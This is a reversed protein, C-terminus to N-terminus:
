KKAMSLRASVWGQGPASFNTPMAWLNSTTPWGALVNGNFEVENQQNLLPIDPLQAAFISEIQYYAQRQAAANSTGQITNLLADVTPNKYRGFNGAASQGIPKTAMSDLLGYYSAYANPTSGGAQILFQFKGTYMDNGILSGQEPTFTMGIHAAKLETQMIEMISIFDSYGSNVKVNVNLPAGSPERFMGDAGIKYGAAKLISEAKAPDAGSYTDKLTAPSAISNYAPLLLAEPNTPTAYGDYVSKSIYARNIAASVAQRVALVSSPGSLYNAMLFTTDMPFDMVAYKSNKGLYSKNINPLFATGWDVQGSEIAASLPATGSFALLRWEKIKPLGPLYYHPNAVLTIVQPTVKSVLYPGTGVPTPNTWTAINKQKSFIHRPLIYTGGAIYSLDSYAPKTFKVTVSYQGDAVAGALPLGNGNFAPNSTELNFTYAVDASTFPKGDTWMVNHRLSFTISEGDAAWAYGTALWPEIDAANASNFFMLPEYIMGGLVGQATPSFPNFDDAFQSATGYTRTAIGSAGSGGTDSPGACGALAGAAVVAAAAVASWGRTRRTASRTTFTKRISM